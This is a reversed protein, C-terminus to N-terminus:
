KIIFYGAHWTRSNSWRFMLHGSKNSGAGSTPSVLQNQLVFSEEFYLLGIYEVDITCKTEQQSNFLNLFQKEKVIKNGLNFTVYRQFATKNSGDYFGRNGIVKANRCRNWTFM